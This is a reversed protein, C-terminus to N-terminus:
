SITQSGFVEKRCCWSRAVSDFKWVGCCLFPTKNLMFGGLQHSTQQPFLIGPLFCRFSVSFGTQTQPVSLRLIRFCAPQQEERQQHNVTQHGNATSSTSPIDHKTFSAIKSHKSKNRQPRKCTWQPHFNTESERCSVVFDWVLIVKLGLAENSIDLGLHNKLSPAGWIAAWLEPASM